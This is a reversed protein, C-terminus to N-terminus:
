KAVIKCDFNFRDGLAGRTRSWYIEGVPNKVVIGSEQAQEVASGCAKDKLGMLSSGDAHGIFVHQGSELAIRRAKDPSQVWGPAPGSADVEKQSYLVDTVTSCAGFSLMSAALIVLFVKKEFM